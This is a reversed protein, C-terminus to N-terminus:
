LPQFFFELQQNQQSPSSSSSPSPSTQSSSSCFRVLSDVDPPEPLILVRKRALPSLSEFEQLYERERLKKRVTLYILVSFYLFFFLCILYFGIPSPAFCVLLLYVFLAIWHSFFFRKTWRFFTILLSFRLWLVLHDQPIFESGLLSFLNGDIVWGKGKGEEEEKEADALFFDLYEQFEKQNKRWDTKEKFDDLRLYKLSLRRSLEKALTSKGSGSTGILRIKM